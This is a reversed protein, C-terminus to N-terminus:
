FQKNYMMWAFILTFVVLINRGTFLPLDLIQIDLINIYWKPVQLIAFANAILLVTWLKRIGSHGAIETIISLNM